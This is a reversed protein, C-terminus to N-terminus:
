FLLAHRYDNLFLRDYQLADNPSLDSLCDFAVAYPITKSSLDPITSEIQLIAGSDFRFIVASPKHNKFLLLLL